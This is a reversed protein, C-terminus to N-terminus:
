PQTNNNNDNTEDKPIPKTSMYMKIVADRVEFAVDDQIEELVQPVLVMMVEKVASPVNKYYVKDVDVWYVPHLIPLNGFIFRKGFGQPVFPNDYDEQPAVVYVGKDDPLTMVRAPLNSYRLGLTEDTLIPINKYTQLWSESIGREGLLNLKMYYDKKVLASSAQHIASIVERIDTGFGSAVPNNGSLQRLIEEALAKTKM